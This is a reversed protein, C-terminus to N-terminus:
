GNKGLEFAFSAAALFYLPATETRLIRPGLGVRLAQVAELKVIEETALGGEPGFIALISEGPKAQDFLTALASSEGEKASEEYAVVIYDYSRAVDLLAQFSAVHQFTPVVSRHSQEAAEKAIKDLREVKKKAKKSDWKSISRKAPFSLFSKAGLETGKQTILELKDGKPLGSAITIHVPLESTSEKWSVIKFQVFDDGIEILEAIAIQEDPTVLYVHDELKMRMVRVIHHFDEGTIRAKDDAIQDIFYRQM